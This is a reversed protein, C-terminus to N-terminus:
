SFSKRRWRGKERGRCSLWLSNGAALPNPLLRIQALQAAHCLHLLIYRHNNQNNCIHRWKTVRRYPCFWLRSCGNNWVLETSNDLIFHIHQPLQVMRIDHTKKKKQDKWILLFSDCNAECNMVFSGKCISPKQDRVHWLKKKQENLLCDPFATRAGTQWSLVAISVCVNWTCM